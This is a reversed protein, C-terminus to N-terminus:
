RKKAVLYIDDTAESVPCEQFTVHPALHWCIEEKYTLYVADRDAGFADTLCTPQTNVFFGHVGDRRAIQRRIARCKLPVRVRSDWATVVADWVDGRRIKERGTGATYGCRQSSMRSYGLFDPCRMLWWGGSGTVRVSEDLFRQPRVAHELVYLSFVCDYTDSQLPLNGSDGLQVFTASPHRSRNNALQVASFDVGTYHPALDPFYDLIRAAGCGIELIRLSERARAAIDKNVHDAAWAATAFDIDAYYTPSESYFKRMTTELLDVAAKNRPDISSIWAIQRNM